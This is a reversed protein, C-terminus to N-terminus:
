DYSIYYWKDKILKEQEDTLNWGDAVNITKNQAFQATLCNLAMNLEENTIDWEWKRKIEGDIFIVDWASVDFINVDWNLWCEETRMLTKSYGGNLTYRPEKNELPEKAKKDLRLALVIWIIFILAIICRLIKKTTKM